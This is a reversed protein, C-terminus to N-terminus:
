DHPAKPTSFNRFRYWVAAAFAAISIFNRVQHINGIPQHEGHEGREKRPNNPEYNKVSFFISGSRPLLYLSLSQSSGCINVFVPLRPSVTHRPKNLLYVSASKKSCACDPVANIAHRSHKRGSSRSQTKRNQRNLLPPIVMPGPILDGMPATSVVQSQVTV